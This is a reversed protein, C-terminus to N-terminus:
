HEYYIFIKWNFGPAYGGGKILSKKYNVYFMRSKQSGYLKSTIKRIGFKSEIYDSINTTGDIIFSANLNHM